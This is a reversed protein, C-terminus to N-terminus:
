SWRGSEALAAVIEKTYTEGDDGVVRAELLEALEVMKALCQISPNKCEIAGGDYWFCEQRDSLSWEVAHGRDVVLERSIRDYYDTTKVSLTSDADVVTGWEAKPIPIEARELWHHARTIYVSYGM